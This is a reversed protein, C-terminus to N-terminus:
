QCVKFTARRLVPSFNKEVHPNPVSLNWKKRYFQFGLMFRVLKWPTWLSTGLHHSHRLCCYHNVYHCYCFCFRSILTSRARCYWLSPYVECCLWDKPKALIGQTMSNKFHLISIIPNWSLQHAEIERPKSLVRVKLSQQLSELVLFHM